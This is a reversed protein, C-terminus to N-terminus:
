KMAELIKKLEQKALHNDRKGNKTTATVCIVGTIITVRYTIGDVIKKYDHSGIQQYGLKEIM